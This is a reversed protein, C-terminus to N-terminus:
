DPIVATAEIEVKAADEVLAAVEVVSMVPYYRGMVERYADGIERSRALYERKDTVYWTLRVVHQAGAGAEALIALINVLAQRVQTALDMSAFRCQGDWGIQGGTFVLTGRAKIGNAFGRPMAWGVPQLIEAASSRV